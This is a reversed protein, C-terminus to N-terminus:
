FRYLETCRSCVPFTKLRKVIKRFNRYAPGNWIEGFTKEKINGGSFDLEECPRVTGDPFVYAVMWPSLCRNPYSSSSFNFNSYYNRIEEESFDPYFFVEIPFKIKQMDKIEQIFYEIDINPLQSHIFGSWDYSKVKFYNEFIQNHKALIDSNIFCLHHFTIADAGISVGTDIIERLFRYNDESITCAININPKSLSYSQKYEKIQTLGSIANDFSGNVQTIRDHVDKPGELSFIIEDLNADIVEKASNKLLTGNTIVNCRLGKEKIYAVLTIWDKYLLPEGGFLTINPKFAAVDDVLKKLEALSLERGLFDSPKSKTAGCIGWYGCM